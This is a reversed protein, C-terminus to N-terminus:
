ALANIADVYKGMDCAYFGSSNIANIELVRLGDPTDAIDLCFARNPCWQNACDQAYARVHDDVHPSYHVRAGRKYLSGTIVVGDVVYFRYEAHIPKPSALVVLDDGTLTAYTSQGELAIVRERWDAFEARSMVQGAFRKDDDVPRVFVLEGRCRVDKLPGVQADHNLMRDGYNLLLLRYDLNDDFYGPRWGKRRAVNRLGTGGCVFVPGEPSVEPEIEHVFPRLKVVAHPTDQVALQRRLAEFAQEDFLNDQLVWFM